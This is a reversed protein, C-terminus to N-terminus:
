HLTKVKQPQYQYTFRAPSDAEEVRRGNFLDNDPWEFKKM